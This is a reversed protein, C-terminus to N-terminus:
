PPLSGLEWLRIELAGVSAAAETVRSMVSVSPVTTPCTRRHTNPESASSLLASVANRSRVKLAINRAEIMATAMETIMPMRTDRM